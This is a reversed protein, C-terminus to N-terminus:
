KRSDTASRREPPSDEEVNVLKTVAMKRLRESHESLASKLESLAPGFADSNQAAVVKGCLERIRDELRRFVRGM